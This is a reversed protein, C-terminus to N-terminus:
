IRVKLVNIIKNIIPSYMREEVLDYTYNGENKEYLNSIYTTLIFIINFIPIFSILIALLYYLIPFKYRGNDKFQFNEWCDSVSNRVRIRSRTFTFIILFFFLCILISITYFLM